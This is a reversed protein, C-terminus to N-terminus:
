ESSANAAASGNEIKTESVRSVRVPTRHSTEDDQAAPLLELDRRHEPRERGVRARRQDDASKETSGRTLKM